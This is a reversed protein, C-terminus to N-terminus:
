LTNNHVPLLRQPQQKTWFMLILHWVILPGIAEQKCFLPYQRLLFPPDAEVVDIAVFVILRAVSFLPTYYLNNCQVPVMILLCLVWENKRPLRRALAIASAHVVTTLALLVESDERGVGLAWYTFCYSLWLRLVTFFSDSELKVIHWLLHLYGALPPLHTPALASVAAGLAVALM